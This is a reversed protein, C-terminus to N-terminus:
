IKKGLNKAQKHATILELRRYFIDYFWRRLRSQVTLQLTLLSHAQVLKNYISFHIHM